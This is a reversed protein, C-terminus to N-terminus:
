YPLYHYQADTNSLSRSMPKLPRWVGSIGVHYDRLKFLKFPSGISLKCATYCTDITIVSVASGLKALMGKTFGRSAMGRTEWENVAHSHHEERFILRSHLQKKSSTDLTCIERIDPSPSSTISDTIPSGRLVLTSLLLMYIEEPGISHLSPSSALHAVRNWVQHERNRHMYGLFCCCLGHYRHKSISLYGNHVHVIHLTMDDKTGHTAMSTWCRSAPM